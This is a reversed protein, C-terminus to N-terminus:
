RLCLADLLLSSSALPPYVYTGESCEVAVDSVHHCDELAAAGIGPHSCYGINTENGMCGVETLWVPMEYGIDFNFAALYVSHAYLSFQRCVVVADRLDFRDICVTGWLNNHWVELRGNTLGVATTGNSLRVTLEEEGPLVAEDALYALRALYVYLLLIRTSKKVQTHVTHM